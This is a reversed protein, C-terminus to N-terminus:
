EKGVDISQTTAKGYLKVLRELERKKEMYSEHMMKHMNWLYKTHYRKKNGCAKCVPEIRKPM